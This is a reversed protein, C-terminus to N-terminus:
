FERLNWMLSITAQWGHMSTHLESVAKHSISSSSTIYILCFMIDIGGAGRSKPMMMMLIDMTLIYGDDMDVRCGDGDCM